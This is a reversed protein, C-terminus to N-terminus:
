EKMMRKTAVIQGDAVLTYTYIGTSLDAGFVTLSGLGREVVDVSQIIKGNSDYFHIQAKQVTAPISFNIVTQEAFPNPVNQDLIIAEKNALRVSLQARVEEQQAPTNNQIAQQSLQCLLPLIGSLCNELQTLRNNLDNVQTELSQVNNNLDNITSNQNQIIVSKRQLDSMMIPILQTMDVAKYQFSPAIENGLSDFEAPHTVMQVATPFYQEVQQALFGFKTGTALNLRSANGTQNYEYSVPTLMQMLSDTQLDLSTINHKLTSDSPWLSSNTIVVNGVFYGAYGNVGPSDACEGYVGISLTGSSGAKFKGGFNTKVSGDSYGRAGINETYNGNGYASFDGGMNIAQVVTSQAYGRVGITTTTGEQAYGYVGQITTGNKANGFVATLRNANNASVYAGYKLPIVTPSISNVLFGNTYVDNNVIVRANGGLTAGGFTTVGTENVFTKFLVNNQAMPVVTAHMLPNTGWEVEGNANVWCGNYANTLGTSLTGWTGDGLLAEGPNGSFDLRRVNVDSSGNANVGILISNPTAAQVNRIRVNGFVDLNATPDANANIGVRQGSPQIQLNGNTNTFFDTFAGSTSFTLRFQTTADLVELRRAADVGGFVPDGPNLGIRWFNNTGIRGTEQDLRSFRHIGSGQTVNYFMGMQTTGMVEFRNRQGSIIGSIGFRAHTENQGNSNSTFLDLNGQAANAGTNNIRLGDGADGTFSVLASNHTFRARNVGDTMIWIDSAWRTGLVNNNGDSNTNGARSWFQRNAQGSPGVGSPSNTVPQAIMQNFILSFGFLTIFKRKM